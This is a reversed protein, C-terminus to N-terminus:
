TRGAMLGAFQEECAIGASASLTQRSRSTPAPMSKLCEPLVPKLRRVSGTGCHFAQRVARSSAAPLEVFQQDTLELRAAWAKHHGRNCPCNAAEPAEELSSEVSWATALRPVEAPSGPEPRIATRKRVELTPSRLTERLAPFREGERLRIAGPSRRADPQLQSPAASWRTVRRDSRLQRNCPEPQSERQQNAM